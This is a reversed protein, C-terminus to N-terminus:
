ITLATKQREKEILINNLRQLNQVDSELKQNQKEITEREKTLLSNLELLNKKDVELEVLRNENRTMNIKLNRLEQANSWLIHAQSNFHTKVSSQRIRKGNCECVYWIDDGEKSLDM